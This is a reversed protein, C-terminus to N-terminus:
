SPLSTYFLSFDPHIFLHCHASPVVAAWLLPDSSSPASHTSAQSSLLTLFPMGPPSLGLLSGPTQLATHQLPRWAVQYGLFPLLLCATLVLDCSAQSGRGTALAGDKVNTKNGAGTMLPAQQSYWRRLLLAKAKPRKSKSNGRRLPHRSRVVWSSEDEKNFCLALIALMFVLMIIIIATPKCGAVPLSYSTAKKNQFLIQLISAYKISKMEKNCLTFCYNFIFSKSFDELAPIQLSKRYSAPFYISSAQCSMLERNCSSFEAIIARFSGCVVPIGRKM